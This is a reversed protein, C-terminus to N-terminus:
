RTVTCGLLTLKVYENSDPLPYYRILRLSQLEAIAPFLQDKFLLLESALNNISIQPRPNPVRKSM